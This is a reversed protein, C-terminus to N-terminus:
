WALQAIGDRREGVEQRPAAERDRTGRLPGIAQVVALAAASVAKPLSSM